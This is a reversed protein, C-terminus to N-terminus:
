SLGKKGTSEEDERELMLDVRRVQIKCKFAGHPEVASRYLAKRSLISNMVAATAMGTAGTRRSGTVPMSDQEMPEKVANKVATGTSFPRQHTSPDQFCAIFLQVHQKHRKHLMNQSNLYAFHRGDRSPSNRNLADRHDRLGKTELHQSHSEIISSILVARNMSPHHFPHSHLEAVRVTALNVTHGLVMLAVSVMCCHSEADFLAVRTTRKLMAM